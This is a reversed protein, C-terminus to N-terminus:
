KRHKDQLCPSGLESNEAMDCFTPCPCTLDYISVNGDNDGSVSEIFDFGGFDETSEIVPVFLLKIGTPETIESIDTSRTMGLYARFGTIPPEIAANALAALNQIDALPVFFAKTQDKQPLSDGGPTKWTAVFSQWNCTWDKAQALTVANTELGGSVIKGHSHKKPTAM